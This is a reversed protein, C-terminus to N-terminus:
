DICGFSNEKERKRNSEGGPSSFINQKGYLWCSYIAFIGGQITIHLFYVSRGRLDSQKGTDGTCGTGVKQLGTWSMKVLINSIRVSVWRAQLRLGVCWLWIEEFLSSSMQLLCLRCQISFGTRTWWLWLWIRCMSPDSATRFLRWCKM